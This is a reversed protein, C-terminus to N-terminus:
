RLAPHRRVFLVANSIPDLYAPEAVRMLADIAPRSRTVFFDYDTDTGHEYDPDSGDWDWSIEQIAGNSRTVRYFNLAPPYIDDAIM